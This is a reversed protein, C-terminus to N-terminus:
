GSKRRSHPSFPSSLPSRDNNDCYFHRGEEQERGMNRQLFDGGDSKKNFLSSSPLPPSGNEAGLQRFIGIEGEEEMGTYSLTPPYPLDYHESSPPPPPIDVPPISPLYTTCSEVTKFFICTQNKKASKKNFLTKLFCQLYILKRVKLPSFFAM